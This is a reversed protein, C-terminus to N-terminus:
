QPPAFRCLDLTATTMEMSGKPIWRLEAEVPTSIEIEQFGHPFYWEFSVTDNVGAFVRDAPTYERAQLLRAWKLAADVVASDLAETGEGDWDDPYNRIGLLEDILAAWAQQPALSASATYSATENLPGSPRFAPMSDTSAGRATHMTQSM